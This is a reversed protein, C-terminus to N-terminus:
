INQKKKKKKFNLIKQLFFSVFFAVSFALCASIIYWIKLIDTFFYLLSLDVSAATGGAILYKIPRKYKIKKLLDKM